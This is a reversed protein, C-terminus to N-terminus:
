VERKREIKKGRMVALFLVVFTLVSLLEAARWYWPSVFRASVTGQFGAPVSVSVLNNNGPYVTLPEGTDVDQAQYGKYYLLPLELFGERDSSNFCGVDVRLAKKEWGEVTVNEEAVPAKYVLQEADTGFPLYEAGAIYGSGMGESNYVRTFATSYLTDNLLFVSSIFTLFVMLGFYWPVLKILGNSRLVRVLLGALITMCVTAITLFRNPFQISSVLTATIRNLFQIRDWPFIMLSMLMALVSFLGLIKGLVAEKKELRETKKLFLALGWLGFATLLAFGIMVPDSNVMGNENFFVNGGRAPYTFLLHTPLLGREQITRAAVNKIVFDGTIMYDAFPVVFWASLLLSYIVTKALVVFTNRQFVKKWLVICLIVTFGGVLEGTLLHSQVLGSFGITLPVWSRKYSNEEIDQTFVRYFGYVLIPLFLVGFTEGLSGSCFTKYFRYISLTYLMSCLVGIYEDKFIKKFCQYSILVTALNILMIFIRYSSLVTFGIIRFFAMIYLLTEGYFISSAYGYGCQWEPAIRVPFQGSLLGDKIGEVRMLHYILDGSNLLYDTMVPISSFFFVVALAFIVNKQRVPVGYERDYCIYIFLSNILLSGCAVIFLWMRNLANTERVTLGTVTLSGEGGYQAHVIMNSTDALLWITFDTKNLGKYLHEGNTFIMKYGVTDDTVTCINKMDTDTSYHLSISYTGNPLSVGGFDVLNGAGAEGSKVSYGGGEELPTGFNAKMDDMDYEYVANKGFLGIFGTLFLVAEIMLLVRFVGRKGLQLAKLRAKFDMDVEIRGGTKM